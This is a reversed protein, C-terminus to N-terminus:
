LKGKERRERERERNGEAAKLLAYMGQVRPVDVGAERGAKIVNGLIVELEMRSGSAWDNWMSPRSGDDKGSDSVRALAKEPTGLGLKQLPLPAGDNVARAAVALVEEMVAKVHASLEPHTALAFNTSGASLVSSANMGANIATKHWRIAQMEKPPHSKTDRFGSQVLLDTFLRARKADMDDATSNASSFSHRYPGLDTKTWRNHRIVGPSPQACSAITVATLITTRPFRKAYPAEVGIGNQILVIATGDDDDSAVLGELLASDDSVDPLAKTAVVIWAWKVGARRIEEVDRFVHAPQFVSAGFERQASQIRFGEAQVAAYNSRCLVSVRTNPVTSLRAAYFAGIAGAGILLIQTPM